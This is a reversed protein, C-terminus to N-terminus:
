NWNSRITEVPWYVDTSSHPRVGLRTAELPGMAAPNEKAIITRLPILVHHSGKFCTDDDCRQRKTGSGLVPIV